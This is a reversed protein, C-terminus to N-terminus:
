IKPILINTLSYFFIMYIIYQIFSIIYSDDFIFLINTLSYFFIMYIIYQMYSIPYADDLILYWLKIANLWISLQCTQERYIDIFIASWNKTNISKYHKTKFIYWYFQVEFELPIELHLPSRKNGLPLGGGEAGPEYFKM